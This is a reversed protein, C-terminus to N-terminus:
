SPEGMADIAAARQKRSEYQWFFAQAKVRDMNQLAQFRRADSQLAANEARLEGLVEQREDYTAQLSLNLQANETRLRQLEDAACFPCTRPKNEDIIAVAYRHGNRCNISVGM